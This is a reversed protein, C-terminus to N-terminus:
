PHLLLVGEGYDFETRVFKCEVAVQTQDLVLIWLDIVRSILQDLIKGKAVANAVDGNIYEPKLGLSNQM